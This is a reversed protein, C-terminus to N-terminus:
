IKLLSPSCHFIVRAWTDRLGKFGQCPGSEVTQIRPSAGGLCRFGQLWQSEPISRGGGRWGRAGDDEPAQSFLCFCAAQRMATWHQRSRIQAVESFDSNLSENILSVSSALTPLGDVLLHGNSLM